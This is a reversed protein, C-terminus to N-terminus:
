GSPPAAAMGIAHTEGDGRQQGYINGATDFILGGYPSTGDLHERDNSFKHLVKYKSAAATAPAFALIVIVVATMVALLKGAASWFKNSHM